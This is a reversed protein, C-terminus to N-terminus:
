KAIGNGCWAEALTDPWPPLTWGPIVIPASVRCSGEVPKTYRKDPEWYVCNKCSTGRRLFMKRRPWKIRM